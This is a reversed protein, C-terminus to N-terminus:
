LLNKAASMESTDFRILSSTVIRHKHYKKRDVRTHTNTFLNYYTPKKLIRFFLKKEDLIFVCHETASTDSLFIMMHQKMELKKGERESVALQRQQEWEECKKEAKKKNQM